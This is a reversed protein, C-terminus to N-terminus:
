AGQADRLVREMRAHEALREDIEEPFRRAYELAQRIAELPVRQGLHAHIAQPDAGYEEALLAIEWVDPGGEIGARRGTVGDRFELLPLHEGTWWERAVFRLGSSPGVGRQAWFDRLTEDLWDELRATRTPM